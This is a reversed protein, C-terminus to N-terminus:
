LLIVLTRKLGSPLRTAQSASFPSVRCTTTSPRLIRRELQVAGGEGAVVARHDVEAGIAPV